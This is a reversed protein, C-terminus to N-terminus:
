EKRWRINLQVKGEPVRAAELRLFKQVALNELEANGCSQVVNVRPPVDTGGFEFIIVSELQTLKAIGAKVEASFDLKIAMGSATTLPFELVNEVKGSEHNLLARSLFYNAKQEPRDVLKIKVENVLPLDFQVPNVAFAFEPPTAPARFDPAKRVYSFGINDSGAALLSPDHRRVFKLADVATQDTSDALDVVTVPPLATVGSKAGASPTKFLVLFLGHVTLTLILAALADLYVAKKRNYSM